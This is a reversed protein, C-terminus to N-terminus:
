PEIQNLVRSFYNQWNKGEVDKMLEKLVILDNKELLPTTLLARNCKAIGLLGKIANLKNGSKIGTNSFERYYKKADTYQGHKFLDEAINNLTLGKGTEYTRMEFIHTGDHLEDADWKIRTEFRIATAIGHSHGELFSEQQIEQWRNILWTRILKTFPIETKDIVPKFLAQIMAFFRIRHEILDHIAFIDAIEKDKKNKIGQVKVKVLLANTLFSILALAADPYNINPIFVADHAILMRKAESTQLLARVAYNGLYRKQQTVRLAEKAFFGCSEYLSNEHALGSLSLLLIARKEASLSNNRYLSLLLKYALKYNGTEKILLGLLLLKEDNTIKVKKIIEEQLSRFIKEEVSTNISPIPRNLDPKEQEFIENPFFVVPNAGIYKCNDKTAIDHFQDIWFPKLSISRKKIEPFYDIDRGSYGLFIIHRNKCMMELFDIVPYNIKTISVMTTNLAELSEVNHSIISGHLKFIYAMGSKPSGDRFLQIANTEADTYPLLVEYEYGLERAAEEFLCDFNTTFIPVKNKVSYDVIFLHNINPTVPYGSMKLYDPSLSKWLTLADNSKHIYLLNEYFLEPQIYYEKENVIVKEKAHKYEEDSPLFILATNNLIKGASPMFSLYSIGSGAFFFGKGNHLLNILNAKNDSFIM